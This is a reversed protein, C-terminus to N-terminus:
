LCFSLWLSYGYYLFCCLKVTFHGPHVSETFRRSFVGCEQPSCLRISFVRQKAVPPCFRKKLSPLSSQLAVATCLVRLLGFLLRAEMLILKIWLPEPNDSKYKIALSKAVLRLSPSSSLYLYCIHMKNQADINLLNM